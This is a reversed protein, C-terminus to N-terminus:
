SGDFGCPTVCLQIGAHRCREWEALAPRQITVYATNDRRDVQNKVNPTDPQGLWIRVADTAYAWVDEDGITGTPSTGIYGPSPVVITDKFTLIRNGERRLLRYSEWHTVVQATAHIMGQRGGNNEALYQELCALGHVLGSPELGTLDIADPSALWTNPNDTEIQANNGAWLEYGLLTETQQELLRRTREVEADEVVGSFTSCVTTVSLWYPYWSVTAPGDLVSTETGYDCTGFVEGDNCGEPAYSIGGKWRDGQDTVPPSSALLGFRPPSALPAVVPQTPRAM